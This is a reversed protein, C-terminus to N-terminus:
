RRGGVPLMVLTKPPLVGITVRVELGIPAVTDAHWVHVGDKRVGAYTLDAPHEGTNTHLVVDQPSDPTPTSSM